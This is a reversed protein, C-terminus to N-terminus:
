ECILKLDAVQEGFARQLEDMTKSPTMDIMPLKQDKRAGCRQCTPVPAHTGHWIQPAIVDGGCNSCTGIVSM